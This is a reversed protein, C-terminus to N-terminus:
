FPLESDSVVPGSLTAGVNNSFQPAPLKEQNKKSICYRVKASVTGNYDEHAIRVAGVKGIWTRYHSLDPDIIGFSNFLDGIRQNTKKPDSQDLVLYYWVKSKYGSISLTLEMGTNGSRFTKEVVDEIRARHDGAPVIEFSKEEYEDANFIWAM